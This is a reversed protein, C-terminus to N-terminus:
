TLHFEVQTLLDINDYPHIPYLPISSRQDFFPLARVGWIYEGFIMWLVGLVPIIKGSRALWFDMPKSIQKQFM